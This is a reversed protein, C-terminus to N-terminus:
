PLISINTLRIILSREGQVIQNNIVTVPLEVGNNSAPIIVFSNTFTEYDVGSIATSTANVEFTVKVDHTATVTTNAFRIRFSGNINPEAAPTEDPLPKYKEIIITGDTIDNITGTGDLTSDGGNLTANVPNSLRLYMIEPGELLNDTLTAVTVTKSTEGYTFTLKGGSTTYDDPATATSNVTTYQVTVASSSCHSGSLTVTFVLDNGENASVNDITIIPKDNITATGKVADSTCGNTTGVVWYDTAGVTSVTTAIPTTLEADSYYAYSDAGSVTATIDVTAPACVTASSNVTIVPPQNITVNVTATDSCGYINTGEIHYIGSLSISNANATVDESYDNNWYTFTLDFTSGSIVNLGVLSVSSCEANPNSLAFEPKSPKLKLSVSDTWTCGSSEYIIKYMGEDDSSFNTIVATTTNAMTGNPYTWWINSTKGIIKLAITVDSTPCVETVEGNEVNTGSVDFFVESSAAVLTLNQTSTYGCDDKVQATYNGALLNPFDPSSQYPTYDSDPADQPKIRYSIAQGSGRITGIHLEGFGNKCVLGGSTNVDIALPIYPPITIYKEAQSYSCINASHSSSQFTIKYTGPDLAATTFQGNSTATSYSLLTGTSNYVNAVYTGTNSPTTGDPGVYGATGTIYYKGCISAPTYALVGSQFDTYPLALTLTRESSGCSGYQIQVKYTGAPLDTWLNMDKVGTMPPRSVPGSIITYTKTITDTAAISYVRFGGTSFDCGLTSIYNYIYGTNIVPLAGVDVDGSSYTYGGSTTISVSYRGITLDTIDLTYSSNNDDWTYTRTLTSQAKNTIKITVPGCNYAPIGSRDVFPACAGNRSIFPNAFTYEPSFVTDKPNCPHQVLIRYKNSKPDTDTPIYGSIVDAVSPNITHWGSLYQGSGSPYEIKMLLPYNSPIFKNPTPSRWFLVTGDEATVVANNSPFTMRLDCGTSTLTPAQMEFSKLDYGSINYRSTIAIDTVMLMNGCADTIDLNYIGTSLQKFRLTRATTSVEQPTTAEGKLLYRFPATGGSITIDLSGDDDCGTVIANGPTVKTIIMSTYSANTITVKNSLTTGSSDYVAVIYTGSELNSFVNSTQQTFFDTDSIKKIAYLVTGTVGVASVTISGSAPCTGNVGTATVVPTPTNDVDSTVQNTIQANLTLSLISCCLILLTIRLM